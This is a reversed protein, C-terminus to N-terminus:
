IRGGKFEPVMHFGRWSVSEGAGGLRKLIELCLQRYVMLKDVQNVKDFAVADFQAAFFDERRGLFKCGVM